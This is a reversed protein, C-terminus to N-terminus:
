LGFRGLPDDFFIKLAIFKVSHDWMGCRLECGSGPFLQQASHDFPRNLHCETLMLAKAVGIGQVWGKDSMLSAVLAPYLM